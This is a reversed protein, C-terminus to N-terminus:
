CRECFEKQIICATEQFCCLLIQNINLSFSFIISDPMTINKTYLLLRLTISEKKMTNTAKVYIIGLITSNDRSAPIISRQKHNNQHNWLKRAHMVTSYLASQQLIHVIFSYNIYLNVFFAVTNWPQLSYLISPFSCLWLPLTVWYFIVPCTPLCKIWELEPTRKCKQRQKKRCSVM